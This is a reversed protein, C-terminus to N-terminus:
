GNFYWRVVLVVAVSTTLYQYNLKQLNLDWGVSGAPSSGAGSLHQSWITISIKEVGKVVVARRCFHPGMEGPVSWLRSSLIFTHLCYCFTLILYIYIRTFHNNFSIVRHLEGVVSAKNEKQDWVETDDTTEDDETYEPMDTNLATMVAVCRHVLFEKNEVNVDTLRPGLNEDM